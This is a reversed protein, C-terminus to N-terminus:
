FFTFNEFEYEEYQSLQSTSAPTSLGTKNIKKLLKSGTISTGAQPSYLLQSWSPENNQHLPRKIAPTDILTMESPLPGSELTPQPNPSPKPPYPDEEEDEMLKFDFIAAREENADTTGDTRM